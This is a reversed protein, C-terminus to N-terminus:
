LESTQVTLRSSALGSMNQCVFDLMLLAQHQGNQGSGIHILKDWIDWISEMAFAWASTRVGFGKAASM